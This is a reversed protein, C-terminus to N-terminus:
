SLSVDEAGGLAKEAAEPHKRRCYGKSLSEECYTDENNRQPCDWAGSFACWKPEHKM